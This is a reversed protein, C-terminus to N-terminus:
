WSMRVPVPADVLNAIIVFTSTDLVIDSGAPVPYGLVNTCTTRQGNDVDIITITAGDPALQTTCPSGSLGEYRHFTAKGLVENTSPAPPVAVIVQAPPLPTSDGGVFLPPDPRYETTSPATSHGDPVVGVGAAGVSPSRSNAASDRSLAWLAPLAVVTFLCAAVVRRRDHANM